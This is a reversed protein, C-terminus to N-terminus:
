SCLCLCYRTSLLSLCVGIDLGWFSREPACCRAYHRHPSCQTYHRCHRREDCRCGWRWPWFRDDHCHRSSLHSFFFYTSEHHLKSRKFAQTRGITDLKKNEKDM